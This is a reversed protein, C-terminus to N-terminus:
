KIERWVNSITKKIEQGCMGTDLSWGPIIKGKAIVRNRRGTDTREVIKLREMEAVFGLANRLFEGTPTEDIKEKVCEIKIGLHEMEEWLVAQHTQNRSLRDFTNIIVVDLERNRAMQRLKTLLPRERYLSGTFVERFTEVVLMNNANAYTMCNAVQGDLSTGEEEQKDTSVRTYIVARIQSSM